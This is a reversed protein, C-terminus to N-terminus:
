EDLALEMRISRVGIEVEGGIVPLQAIHWQLGLRAADGIRPLLVGALLPHMDRVTYLQVGTVDRWSVGMTKLLSEITDLIFVTKQHLGEISFNGEAVAVRESDRGLNRVDPIGALMFTPARGSPPRVPVTYTFAHIRHGLETEPLVVNTRTTPTQGAVLLDAKRLTEVYARGFAQFEPLTAQRGSRLEIGCLAHIPRGEGRLHSEVDAFGEPFPRPRRFTARVIEFGEAALAGLSLFANGPVYRYGGRENPLLRAPTAPRDQLLASRRWGLAVAGMLMERRSVPRTMGFGDQRASKAVKVARM